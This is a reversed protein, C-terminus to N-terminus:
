ASDVAGGVSNPREAFFLVRLKLAISLSGVVRIRDELYLLEPNGRGALIDYFDGGEMRFTVDPRPTSGEGASLQGGDVRAWFSGGSEGVLEVQYTARLDGIGEPRFARRFWDLAESVSQPSTEIPSSM